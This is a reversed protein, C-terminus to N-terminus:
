LSQSREAILACFQEWTMVHSGDGPKKRSVIRIYLMGAAAAGAGDTKDKDGVVLIDGPKCRLAEAIELFPRPAPKQAGFNEPSYLMGCSDPDLGIAELRQGVLPYDSYVARPLGMRDITKFLDQVGPRAPYFTKLLASM